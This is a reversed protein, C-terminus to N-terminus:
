IVSYKGPETKSLTFIAVPVARESVPSGQDDFTTLNYPNFISHVPTSSASHEIFLSWYISKLHLLMGLISIQM